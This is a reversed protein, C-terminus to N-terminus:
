PCRAPHSPLFRARVLPSSTATAWLASIHFFYDQHGSTMFGFGKHHVVNTVIGIRRALHEPDVRRRRETLRSVVERCKRAIYDDTDERAASDTFYAAMMCLDLAEGTFDAPALSEAVEVGFEVEEAPRIWERSDAAQKAIESCARM